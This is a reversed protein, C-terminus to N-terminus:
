NPVIESNNQTNRQKKM